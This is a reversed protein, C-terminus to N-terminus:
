RLFVCAIIMGFIMSLAMNFDGLWKQGPMKKQILMILTSAIFSAGFVTLEAKGKFGYSTSAYGMVGAMCGTGVALVLSPDFKEVQDYVMSIPKTAFISWLVCTCAGLAMTWAASTWAYASYGNVAFEESVAKVGIDAALMEYMASGIVSLRLWPLPIGMLKILSIFVILVPLTPVISITIGTLLGKKIQEDTMGLDHARLWARKMYVLSQVIVGILIVSTLVYMWTSNAIEAYQM